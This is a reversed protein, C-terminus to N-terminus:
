VRTTLTVTGAPAVEAVKSRVVRSSAKASLPSVMTTSNPAMEPPPKSAIEALGAALETVVVMLSSTVGPPGPVGPGSSVTETERM